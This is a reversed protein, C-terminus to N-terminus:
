NLVVTALSHPELVVNYYLTPNHAENISVTHSSKNDTNALIVVRCGNPAIFAIERISSPAAKEFKSQIRHSDPRVFKSFHGMAYWMPQKYYEQMAADVIIPSDVYNKVWNPGGHMNLCLNWDMWGAVYNSIDTIMDNVYTEARGWDGLIPKGQLPLYGNCAETGLMFYDPHRQHTTTMVSPPVEQDEYWHIAIGSVYKAAEADSLITDAWEPLNYRQDDNIMVKLDKSYPSSMLAPGLQGKLFDREMAASLYMTQWGYDPNLGSTPENQVTVGWFDVGNKHYEEFFRIFYNAWTQYYQGGQEGKLRGGGKMHGNTKMWAPASWPTAFFKTTNQSLQQAQIIYPIKYQYDETTLSFNVLGFDNPTDAYSYEHTSFDCSAMPVRGITYQLGSAGYYGELMSDQMSKPLTQLNIGSSDTFAGGFGLMKQFTTRSDLTLLLSNEARNATQKLNSKELRRGAENSYYLVAQGPRLDGLSEVNDCYTTNCVCVVQNKGFSRAACPQYTYQGSVVCFLALALVLLSLLGM